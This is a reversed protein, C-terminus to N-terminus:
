QIVFEDFYVDIIGTIALKEELTKRIQAKLTYRIDDKAIDEESLRTLIDIIADRIKYNNKTMFEIEQKNNMEIVISAKLLKRSGSLNTIFDNGPEYPISELRKIEQAQVGMTKFIFFAAGAGLGMFVLALIIIQGVKNM